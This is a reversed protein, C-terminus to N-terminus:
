ENRGEKQRETAREKRGEKKGDQKRENRGDKWGGKKGEKRGQCGRNGFCLVTIMEYAQTHLVRLATVVELDQTYM